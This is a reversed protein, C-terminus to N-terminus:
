MESYTGDYPNPEYEAPIESEAWTNGAAISPQNKSGIIAYTKGAQPKDESATARAMRLAEAEMARLDAVEQADLWAQFDATEEVQVQSTFKDM